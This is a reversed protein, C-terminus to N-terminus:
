PNTSVRSAFAKKAVFNCAENYRKMTELYVGKMTQHETELRITLSQLM